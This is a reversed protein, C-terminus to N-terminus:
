GRQIDEPNPFEHPKTLRTKSYGQRHTGDKKFERAKDLWNKFAAKPRKMKKKGESWWLQCKEWEKEVDLDPYEIKLQEIFTDFTEKEKNRKNIITEKDEKNANGDCQTRMASANRESTEPVNPSWRAMASRRAAEIKADMKEMRRLLSASYLYDGDRNFLSFRNVCDDIFTNLLEPKCNLDIAYGAINGNEIPLRYDAQERMMEVIAWFLGLGELNYVSRMKLINPDHRANCDHTFYFADKGM